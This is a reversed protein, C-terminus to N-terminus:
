PLTKKPELLPQFSTNRLLKTRFCCFHQSLARKVLLRFCKPVHKIQLAEIFFVNKAKAPTFKLGGAKIERRYYIM